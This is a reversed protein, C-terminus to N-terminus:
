GIFVKRSLFVFLLDAVFIVVGLALMSVVVVITQRRLERRTPWSVKRLEGETVILFDAPKPANVIWGILAALGVALLAVILTRWEVGGFVVADWADLARHIDYLGFLGFLGVGAATTM